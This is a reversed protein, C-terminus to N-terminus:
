DVVWGGELAFGGRRTTPSLIGIMGFAMSTCDKIAHSLSHLLSLGDIRPNGCIMSGFIANKPLKEEAQVCFSSALLETAELCTRGEEALENARRVVELPLFGELLTRGEVLVVFLVEKARKSNALCRQGLKVPSPSPNIPNYCRESVWRLTSCVKVVKTNADPTWQTALGKEKNDLSLIRRCSRRLKSSSILHLFSAPLLEAAELCTQGEEAPKNPRGVVKSPLFVMWYPEAKLLSLLSSKKSSPSPNVQNFMEGQGVSIMTWKKLLIHQNGIAEERPKNSM